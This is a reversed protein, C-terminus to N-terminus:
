RVLGSEHYHESDDATSRVLRALAERRRGGRVLGLVAERLSDDARLRRRLEVVSENLFASLVAADRGARADDDVTWALRDLDDLGTGDVTSVLVVGGSRPGRWQARLAGSLAGAGSRDAKNVAIVDAVELIGAKLAQVDDGSEPSLVLVVRDAYAAVDVDNQGGGVPEVFVRDWGLALVTDIAAPIAGALGGPHGRSAFSRVFVGADGAHGALRIRDGLLAGGTIPSSPDVALVVVREGRARARAVLAGILTSKGVGPPGVVGLVAGVSRESCRLGDGGREVETLARATTRTLELDETISTAGSPLTM